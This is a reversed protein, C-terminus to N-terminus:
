RSDLNEITCKKISVEIINEKEEDLIMNPKTYTGRLGRASCAKQKRQEEKLAKHIKTKLPDKEKQPRQASHVRRGFKSVLADKVLKESTHELTPILVELTTVALSEVM